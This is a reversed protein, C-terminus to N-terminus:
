LLQSRPILATLMVTLRGAAGRSLDLREAFLGRTGAVAMTLWLDTVISFKSERGLSISCSGLTEGARKQSCINLEQHAFM